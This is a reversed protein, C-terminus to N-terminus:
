YGGDSSASFYIVLLTATGLLGGTLASTKRKSRVKDGFAKEYAQQYATPRSVLGLRKDAPLEVNSSAAFAYTAGTGILGLIIGGAFGGGFWGGTGVNTAAMQGDAQAQALMALAASTASDPVAQQTPHQAGAAAAPAVVLALLATARRVRHM